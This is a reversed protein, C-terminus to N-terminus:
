FKPYPVLTTDYHNTSKATEITQNFNKENWVLEFEEIEPNQVFENLNTQGEGVVIRLVKIVADLYSKEIGQKISFPFAHLYEDLVIKSKEPDYFCIADEFQIGEEDNLTGEADQIVVDEPAESYITVFLEIVHQRKNWNLEWDFAPEDKDLLTKLYDIIDKNM